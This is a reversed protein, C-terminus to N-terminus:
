SYSWSNPLHSQTWGCTGYDERDDVDTIYLIKQQFWFINSINSFCMYWICTHLYTYQINIFYVFSMLFCMSKWMVCWNIEEWCSYLFWGLLQGINGACIQVAALAHKKIGQHLMILGSLIGVVTKIVHRLIRISQVSNPKCLSWSSVPVPFLFIVIPYTMPENTTFVHFWRSGCFFQVM